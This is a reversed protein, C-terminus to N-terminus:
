RRRIGCGNAGGSGTMVYPLNTPVFSLAKDSSSSLVKRAPSARYWVFAANGANKVVGGEHGSWLWYQNAFYSSSRRLGSASRLDDTASSTSASSVSSLM